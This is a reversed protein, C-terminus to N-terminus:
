HDHRSFLAVASDVVDDPVSSEADARATTRVDTLVDVLRTCRECGSAHQEMERRAAETGFGRVYDIWAEIPFHTVSM